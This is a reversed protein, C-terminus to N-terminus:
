SASCAPWPRPPAGVHHRSGRRPIYQTPREGGACRLCSCRRVTVCESARCVLDASQGDPPCTRRHSPIRLGPGYSRLAGARSCCRARGRRCAMATPHRAGRARLRDRHRTPSRKSGLPLDVPWRPRGVRVSAVDTRPSIQATRGVAVL